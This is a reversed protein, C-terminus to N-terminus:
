WPFGAALLSVLRTQISFIMVRLALNMAISPERRCLWATVRVARRTYPQCEGLVARNALIKQVYSKQWGNSAAVQLRDAILLERDIGV